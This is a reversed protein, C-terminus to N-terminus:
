EYVIEETRKIVRLRQPYDPRLRTVQGIASDMFDHDYLDSWAVLVPNEPYEECQVVYVTKTKM